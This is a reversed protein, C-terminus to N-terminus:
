ALITKKAEALATTDSEFVDDWVTSNNYEDVVELVWSTEGELRYIELRVTKDGSSVEQSLPSTELEPEEDM